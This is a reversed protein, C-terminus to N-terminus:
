SIKQSWYSLEKIRYENSKPKYNSETGGGQIIIFNIHLISTAPFSCETNLDPLNQPFFACKISASCM